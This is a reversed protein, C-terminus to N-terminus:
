DGLRKLEEYLERNKELIRSSINRLKPSLPPLVDGRVEGDKITLAIRSGEALGLERIVNTPIDALWSAFESNTTEQNVVDTREIQLVEPM